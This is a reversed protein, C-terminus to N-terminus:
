LKGAADMGRKIAGLQESTADLSQARMGKYKLANEGDDFGSGIKANNRASNGSIDNPNTNNGYGGGGKGIGGGGGGGYGGGGGGYGGAAQNLAGMPGQGRLMGNMISGAFQGPNKGGLMSSLADKGFGQLMGSLGGAGSKSQGGQGTLGSLMNSPSFSKIGEMLKGAMGAPGPLKSLGKTLMDGASKMIGSLSFGGTKNVGAM